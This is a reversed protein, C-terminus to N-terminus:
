GDFDTDFRARRKEDESPKDDLDLSSEADELTPEGVEEMKEENEEDQGIFNDSEAEEEEPLPTANIQSMAQQDMPTALIEQYEEVTIEMRQGSSIDVASVNLIGNADIQFKVEIEPIEKPAPLIDTLKFFALTHNQSAFPSEGQLVHIRVTTQNDVTTTFKKYASTPINSNRPIITSFKDNETEIGLSYPTIDLLLVEALSGEIIATQIAAGLAVAEDPNIGKSPDKKFIKSAMEQVAPIRTSGGVLLIEKLEESSIGADHLARRCPPILKELLPEVLENFEERTIEDSFHKVGEADAYLFPINITTKRLFSLECKVKEASERVRRHVEINDFISMGFQKQIKEDIYNVLLDDIDDGGLHTNGASSKVELVNGGVELISIDFTGGGFDFVAILGEDEEKIGYALSAATPENIIRTVTLGALEAARKTAQRQGDNFYAPVTIVAHEVTSNLYEEATNKIHKLLEASIKEPSLINGNIEVAAGGEDDQVVKYTLSKTHEKVDEYRQGMFRKISYITSQPQVLLLRKAVAGVVCNGHADYNVVSPIVKGGEPSPIVEARNGSFFAVVSNTTGLDIGISSTM